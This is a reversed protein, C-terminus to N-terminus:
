RTSAVTRPEVAHQHPWSENKYTVLNNGVVSQLENTATLAQPFKVFFKPLPTSSSSTHRFMTHDTETPLSHEIRRNMEDQLAKVTAAYGKNNFTDMRGSVGDAKRSAWAGTGMDKAILDPFGSGRNIAVDLIAKIQEPTARPGAEHALQGILADSLPATLTYNKQPYTVINKEGSDSVLYDSKPLHADNKYVVPQVAPKSLVLKQGVRIKNPDKLKNWATLDAVSLGYKKAIRGLTDGRSVVHNSPIPGVSASKVVARAEDYGIGFEACKNIFGHEFASTM